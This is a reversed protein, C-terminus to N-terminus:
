RRSIRVGGNTTTVRLRPGGGGITATIHRNIRTLRGQVTIPFDVDIGGNTTAADLEASYDSPLSMSVGGNRTEADLGTGEWRRGDLAISIGGNVTTARIDGGVGDLSIGGNVTRADARGGYSEISIGGNRTDLNMEIGRPVEIEFSVVVQEEDRRRASTDVRIRGDRTTLQADALLEDADRQDRAWAAIKARVRVDSRDSGRVRIGGNGGTDADVLRIGSLTEERVDCAFAARRWGGGNRDDRCWEDKSLGFDRDRFRNRAQASLEPAATAFMALGLCLAPVFLRPRAM